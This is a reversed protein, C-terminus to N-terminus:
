GVVERGGSCVHGMESSTGKNAQLIDYLSREDQPEPGEASQKQSAEVAAQAASWADLKPEDTAPTKPVTTGATVFGSSMKDNHGPSTAQLFGPPKLPVAVSGWPKAVRVQGGCAFPFRTTQQAIVRNRVVMVKEFCGTCITNNARNGSHMGVQRGIPPNRM